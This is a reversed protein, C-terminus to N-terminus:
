EMRNTKLKINKVEHSGQSSGDYKIANRYFNSFKGNVSIEQIKQGNLLIEEYHSNPLENYFINMEYNQLSSLSLPFISAVPTKAPICIEVNPVLIRWALPLPPKYFSTSIISTYCQAYANFDNPVPITLMSVDIDSFFTLGTNFSLTANGRSSNCYKLGKLIKIHSSSNDTIGDWTFVIDEPFSIGWGLTNSLSVPFCHYAHRESTEDMWNRKISLQEINAYGKKCHVKIEPV